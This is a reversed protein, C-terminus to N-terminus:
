ILELSEAMPGKQGMRTSVRVRQETDLGMVGARELVKASVFVDRSGDDPTIFGFGKAANYFKVTGALSETPGSNFDGGYSSGGGYSGGGGYSSGGGGYGGGGYGDNGRPAGRPARPQSPGATSLDVTHISAVQAGKPGSALDCEITAGEAIDNYGAAEVVSVHLFADPSGDSPQVFGFGKSANYWKVVASVGNQSPDPRKSFRRENM